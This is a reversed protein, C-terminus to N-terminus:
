DLLKKLGTLKHESIGIGTDQISVKILYPKTSLLTFAITIDGLNTFKLANTLLNLM